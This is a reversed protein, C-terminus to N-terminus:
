SLIVPTMMDLTQRTRIIRISQPDPNEIKGRCQVVVTYKVFSRSMHTQDVCESPYKEALVAVKGVLDTTTYDDKSSHLFELMKEVIVTVNQSNTIRFLM